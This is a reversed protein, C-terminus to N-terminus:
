NSLTVRIGFTVKGGRMADPFETEPAVSEIVLLDDNVIELKQKIIELLEKSTLTIVRQIKM